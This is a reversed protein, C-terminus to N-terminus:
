ANARKQVDDIAVLTKEVFEDLPCVGSHLLLGNGKVSFYIDDVDNLYRTACIMLKHPLLMSVFLASTQANFQTFSDSVPLAGLAKITYSAAEQQMADMEGFGQIETFPIAYSDKLLFEVDAPDITASIPADAYVAYDDLHMDIQFTEAACTSGAPLALAIFVMGNIVFEKVDQVFDFAYDKINQTFELKNM